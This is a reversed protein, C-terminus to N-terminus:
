SILLSFVVDYPILMDFLITYEYKKSDIIKKMDELSYGMKMLQCFIICARGCIASEVDCIKKQSQYKTKNIITKMNSRKILDNLAHKEEGLIKQITKSIFNLEGDISGSYSDFQIITDNRKCISVFHGSNHTNEVLIICCENNNPLIQNIHQLEDLDGYKIIKIDSGLYRRIDDDTIFIPLRDIAKELEDFDINRYQIDYAQSM